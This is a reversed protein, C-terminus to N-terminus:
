EAMPISQCQRLLFFVGVAAAAPLGLALATDRPKSCLRHFFGKKNAENNKEIEENISVIKKDFSGIRPNENEHLEKLRHADLTVNGNKDENLYNKISIVRGVDLRGSHLLGIELGITLCEYYYSLDRRQSLLKNISEQNLDHFSSIDYENFPDKIIIPASLKESQNCFLGYRLGINKNLGIQFGCLLLINYMTYEEQCNNVGVDKFVENL